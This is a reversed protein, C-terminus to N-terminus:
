RRDSGVLVRFQHGYRYRLDLHGSNLVSTETDTRFPYYEWGIRGMNPSAANHNTLLYLCRFTLTKNCGMGMNLM